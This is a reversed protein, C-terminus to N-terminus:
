LDLLQSYSTATRRTHVSTSIGISMEFYAIHQLSIHSIDNKRKHWSPKVIQNNLISSCTM